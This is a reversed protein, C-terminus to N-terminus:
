VTLLYLICLVVLALLYVGIRIIRTPPWLIESRNQDGIQENQDTDVTSLSTIVYGAALAGTISGLGYQYVTYAEFLQHVVFASALALAAPSVSDRRMIGHLTPGVVVILYGSLGVIGTRLLISLYSNHVSGGGNSLYPAIIESTSVLGEGLYMPSGLYAKLGASWLTLRNGDADPFFVFIGLLVAIIGGYSGIVGVSINQRGGILYTGYVVLGTTAALVSGRSNTLALGVGTILVLPVFVLGWDSRRKIALRHFEIVAAVLGPFLVLGLTNPNVFVSQIIPVEGDLLPVSRTRWIRVEFGLISYEGVVVAWLGVITFLTAVLVLSQRFFPESVYRPLVFLNLGLIIAAFVPFLALGSTPPVSPVHYIFVGVLLAYGLVYLASTRLYSRNCPQTIVLAIMALYTGVLGWVPLVNVRAHWTAAISVLLGFVAQLGLFILGSRGDMRYDHRSVAIFAALLYVLVLHLTVIWESEVGIERLVVIVLLVAFLGHTTRNM